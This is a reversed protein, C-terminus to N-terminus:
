FVRAIEELFLSRVRDDYTQWTPEAISGILMVSFKVPKQWRTTLAHSYALVQFYTNPDMALRRSSKMEVVGIWDEYEVVIDAFGEIMVSPEPWCSLPMEFIIQKASLFAQNLVQLTPMVQSKTVLNKQSDECGLVRFAADLLRDVSPGDARGALMNGAEAVLQHALNGDIIPVPAVVEDIVLDGIKSSPSSLLASAFVRTKKEQQHFVSFNDNPQCHSQSLKVPEPEGIHEVACVKLFQEMDNKYARLFLGILSDEHARDFFSKNSSVVYLEEKARTLAVYLLRALEKRDKTKQEKKFRDFRTEALSKELIDKPGCAAIFRGKPKIALGGQRDVLLDGYNEILVGEGDAVVVIKFELGKSQHITMISLANQQLEGFAQPEKSDDFIRMFYDDIVAFPNEAVKAFMSSLKKVNAWKQQAYDSVGLASSFDSSEILADLGAMLGETVVVTRIKTLVQLFKELREQSSPKLWESSLALVASHLNLGGEPDLLRLIEQDELMVLPSRLAVSLAWSDGPHNILRLASLLDVVEQQQFFGDGGIIHASVGLRALNREVVGASRMKRVLVVIDKPEVEPRQDLMEVIGNAACSLNDDTRDLDSESSSVWLVCKGAGIGELAVLAEAEDYSDPELAHRSVLNSLEIISRQSRRNVRLVRRLFIDDGGSNASLKEVMHPLLSADAGRFGYISQKTDGVIFMSPGCAMDVQDTIRKNSILEAENKRNEMLLAVIDEQLPSTDQYEDVLMHKIGLKIRRRFIHDKLLAKRVKQLLDGYSLKAAYSKQRHFDDHFQAFLRSVTVEDDFVYHDVLKAGLAVIAEVLKARAKRDGFNGRVVDRLALFEQTVRFEDCEDLLNKLEAVHRSARVLRDRTSSSLNHQLFGTVARDIDDVQILFSSQKTQRPATLAELNQCSIGKESLKFYLSLLADVLGLSMLGNSLRFRAVLSKVSSNGSSVEKLIIPRLVNRALVWEDRPLLIDFGEDVGIARAERRILSSCFAHFTAIPANPIARLIRRLEDKRPLDIAERELVHDELTDSLLSALQRTIRLRMEYAAKETFTLALIENPRKKVGTGDLGLLARLYNEVLAYTKGTGASAMVAIRHTPSSV